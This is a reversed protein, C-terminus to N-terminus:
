SWVLREDNFIRWQSYLGTGIGTDEGYSGVRSRKRIVDENIGSGIDHERGHLGKGIGPRNKMSAHGPRFYGIVSVSEKIRETHDM